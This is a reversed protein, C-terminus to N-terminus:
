GIKLTREQPDPNILRALKRLTSKEIQDIRQKSLGLSKGIEVLTPQRMDGSLFRMRIIQQEREDLFEEMLEEIQQLAEEKVMRDIPNERGVDVFLDDHAPSLGKEEQYARKRAQSLTKAISSAAITSFVYGRQWCFYDVLYLLRDHAQYFVDGFSAQPTQYKKAMFFSLRVNRDAFTKERDWLKEYLDSVEKYLDPNEKQLLDLIERIANIKLILKSIEDKNQKLPAGSCEFEKVATATLSKIRIKYKEAVKDYKIKEPPADALEYSSSQINIVRNERGKHAQFVSPLAKTEMLAEMIQHALSDREQFALRQEEPSYLRLDMSDMFSLISKAEDFGKALSNKQM